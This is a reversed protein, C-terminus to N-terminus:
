FLRSALVLRLVGSASAAALTRLLNSKMEDYSAIGIKLTTM